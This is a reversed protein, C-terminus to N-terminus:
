IAAYFIYISYDSTSFAVIVSGSILPVTALLSVKLLFSYRKWFRRHEKIHYSNYRYINASLLTYASPYLVGLILVIEKTCDVETIWLRM